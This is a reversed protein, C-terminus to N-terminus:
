SSSLLRVGSDPHTRVEGRKQISAHLRFDSAPGSTAAECAASRDGRLQTPTDSPRRLAVERGEPLGSSRDFVLALDHSHCLWIPQEDGHGVSADPEARVAIRRDSWQGESAHEMVWVLQTTKLVCQDFRMFNTVSDRVASM